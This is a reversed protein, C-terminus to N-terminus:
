RVGLLCWECLIEQDYVTRSYVHDPPFARQTEANNCHPVHEHKTQHLYVQRPRQSIRSTAHWSQHNGIATVNDHTPLAGARPMILLEVGVRQSVM